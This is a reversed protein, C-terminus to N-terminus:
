LCRTLKNLRGNARERERKMRARVRQRHKMKEEYTKFNRRRNRSLVETVEIIILIETDMEMVKENNKKKYIEARCVPCTNINNEVLKNYCTICTSHNCKFVKKEEETTYCIPCEM